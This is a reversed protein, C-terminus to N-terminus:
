SFDWSDFYSMMIRICSNLGSEFKKAKREETPILYLRFHSLQLFKAVYEIV